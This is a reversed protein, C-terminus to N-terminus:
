RSTATMTQRNKAELRTKIRTINPHIRSNVHDPPPTSIAGVNDPRNSSASVNAARSWAVCVRFPVVIGYMACRSATCTQDDRVAPIFIFGNRRQEMVRHFVLATWYCPFPDPALESLPDSGDDIATRVGVDQGLWRPFGALLAIECVQQGRRGGHLEHHGCVLEIIDAGDDCVIPRRTRQNPRPEIGTRLLLSPKIPCAHSSEVISGNGNDTLQIGCNPLQLVELASKLASGNM